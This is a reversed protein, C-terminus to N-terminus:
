SKGYPFALINFKSSNQSPLGQPDEHRARKAVDGDDGVDVVALGRQDVLEQLLGAGKGGVLMEDLADHVRVVDLALAADRDERLVGRDVVQAHVDVDDVSGAVGIEAALDLADQRHDVAHEQQDIRDLARHRLRAEHRALRERLSQAGDDHHVLHVALGGAGFPHHVLGEVQEVLEAGGFFLEIERHDVGRRQVAPRGGLGAHDAGVHARQEVGHQLVDRLGAAIGARRQLEVDGRHVVGVEEAADGDPADAAAGDLLRLFHHDEGAVIGGRLARMPRM